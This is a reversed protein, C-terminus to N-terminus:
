QMAGLRETRQNTGVIQQGDAQDGFQAAVAPLHRPLERDDTKVADGEAGLHMRRQATNNLGDLCQGAGHNILQQRLDSAGGRNGM